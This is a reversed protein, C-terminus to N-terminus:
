TKIDEMLDGYQKKLYREFAAGNNFQTLAHSLSSKLPQGTWTGRESRASFIHELLREDVWLLKHYFMDEVPKLTGDFKGINFRFMYGHLLGLRADTVLWAQYYHRSPGFCAILGGAPIRLVGSVIEVMKSQLRREAEARKDILVKLEEELRTLEPATLGPYSVMDALPPMTIKKTRNLKM